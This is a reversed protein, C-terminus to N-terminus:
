NNPHGVDQGSSPALEPVAFCTLAISGAPCPRQQSLGRAANLQVLMGDTIGTAPDTFRTESHIEKTLTPQIVTRNTLELGDVREKLDADSKNIKDQMSDEIERVRQDMMVTFSIEQLNRETEARQYGRHDLFWVAFALAALGIGYPLLKLWLPVVPM